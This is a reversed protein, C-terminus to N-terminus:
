CPVRLIDATTSVHQCHTEAHRASAGVLTHLAHHHRVAGSRARKDPGQDPTAAGIAEQSANDIADVPVKQAPDVSPEATGATTMATQQAHEHAAPAPQRIRLVIVHRTGEGARM